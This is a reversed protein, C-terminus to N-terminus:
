LGDVVLSGAELLEGSLPVKIMRVRYSSAALAVRRRGTKSRM